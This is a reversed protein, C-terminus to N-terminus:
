AKGKKEKRSHYLKALCIFLTCYACTLLLATFTNLTIGMLPFLKDGIKILYSHGIYIWLTFIGYKAFRETFDVRLIRIVLLCLFFGLSTQAIRLLSDQLTKYHFAPWYSPLYSAVLLGALLAVFAILWPISGLRPMLDKKRFIMGLVFFPMFAFTRQFSFAMDLPIVGCALALFCSLCFLTTDSISKPLHWVCFRWYVLSLLYWMALKPSVLINWKIMSLDMPKHKLLALLNATGFALVVHALQAVVYILLTSKIWSWQKERNTNRSTFYGSLFVFVPMHFSYILRKVDGGWDESTLHGMVVLFIMIFKIGDLRLDRQM